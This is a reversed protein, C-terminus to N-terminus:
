IDDRTALHIQASFPTKEGRCSIAVSKAAPPPEGKKEPQITHIRNRASNHKTKSSLEHSLYREYSSRVQAFPFPTLNSGRKMTNSTLCQAIREKPRRPTTELWSILYYM